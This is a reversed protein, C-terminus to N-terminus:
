TIEGPAAIFDEVAGRKAPWSKIGARDFAEPSAYQLRRPHQKCDDDNAPRKVHDLARRARALDEKTVTPTRPLQAVDPHDLPCDHGGHEKCWGYAPPRPMLDPKCEVCADKPAGHEECWSKDRDEDDDEEAFLASFRPPTWHTLYGWVGVGALLCLALLTP